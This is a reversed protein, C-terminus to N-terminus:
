PLSLKEVKDVVHSLVLAGWGQNLLQNSKRLFNENEFWYENVFEGADGQCIEAVHRVTHQREVVTIEAAGRNELRCRYTRRQTKDSGDLYEYIRTYEGEGSAVQELSPGAAQMIDPGFGRTAILIGDRFSLTRSDGSAWTEVGGNVGQPVLLTFYSNSPIEALLIPTGLKELDARKLAAVTPAVERGPLILRKAVDRMIRAGATAEKDSGCATSMLMAAIALSISLRRMELIPGM